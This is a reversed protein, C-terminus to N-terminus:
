YIEHIDDMLSRVNVMEFSIDCEIEFRNREIRRKLSNEFHSQDHRICIKKLNNM